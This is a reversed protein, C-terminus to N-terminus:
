RVIRKLYTVAPKTNLEELVHYRRPDRRTLHAVKSAPDLLDGFTIAATPCTQACAPVVEGDRVRRGERRARQSAQRIRQVCFTCKEMVGRCRVSVEPNLQWDLPRPWAADLWNFRRVKYPCNNSCYRTGICRNYVQANLGEENHVSAFVPCVPECPAADCHQCLMPLFGLREQSFPSMGRKQAAGEPGGEAPFSSHGRNGLRYPVIRLWAMQRGRRCEVPGVTHVNNEAYCAVACAGCGICRALDIVMAWRYTKYEHPAYVDKQPDYGEPLPLALPAPVLGPLEAVRVWQLIEREHQDQTATTCIVEGRRGVASLTVSRFPGNGPGAPGALLFANAGRARAHRGLATHGQGFALAAVDEAVDETVRVPAAVAGAADLSVVDGDRLGMRRAQIPHLDIWSGWVNASVPEPVEQLWTRNAGRGDYLMVSPWLWLAQAPGKAAPAPAPVTLRGGKDSRGSRDSNDSLATEWAGGARLSERWFAERPKEPALRPRLDEWRERLWSEFDLGAATPKLPRGAEQAIALFVDGAARTDYLRSMTPQMLGHVGAYPEYDGWAELPSDVPLVWHAAEATEDPMTGLYVVLGAKKLCAAAAPWTYVLNTGHIFVVDGQGIGELASRLEDQTALRSLAHPRSFDVTEGVRGAAVNLLAAATAIEVAEPGAAGMPGALAVSGDAACFAEALEIMRGVPVGAEAAASQVSCAPTLLWSDPALAARLRKAAGGRASPGPQPAELAQRGVGWAGRGDLIAALMGWAVWRIATPRVLLFDDANAATASLRPGVYALRGIRETEYRRVHAFQRAFEVNSIWTELFDAAFSVIFECRDLRYHPIVPRGFVTAHAERLPAYDFPEDLQLASGFASAFREMVEALAGTELGSIVAARRGSRLQGAIARVASTWDSARSQFQVTKLRDPDYLGQVASQGRPCLAGRNVPHTPNGEAKTVRGDRHLLHMGCGAPCERCTTAYCAASRAAGEGPPPGHVAPTLRDASKLGLGAALAGGGAAELFVRRTMEGM